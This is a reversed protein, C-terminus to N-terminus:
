QVIVVGSMNSHITCHYNYTGAVTFTRSVNASATAPIGTVNAGTPQSDWSVTHAVSQFAWTVTASGGSRGVTVSPPHFALSAAATVTQSSPPTSVVLQATGSHSVSGSTITATITTNGNAIGTAVGSSPDITAKTPDSSTWAAGPLGTMTHGNQDKATATMAITNDPSVAPSTPGVSVSTFVPTPGTSDSSSGGCASIAAVVSGAAIIRLVRRFM